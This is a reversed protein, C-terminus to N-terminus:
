YEDAIEVTSLLIFFTIEVIQVIISSATEVM